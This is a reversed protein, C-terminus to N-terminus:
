KSEVILWFNFNIEPTFNLNVEYQGLKKIAQFNKFYKAQLCFDFEKKILKIVDKIQIAGYLLGNNNASVKVVVTKNQLKKKLKKFYEKQKQEQKNKKINKQQIKKILEKTAPKALGKKFLFNQAYGDSLDVIQGKKYKSFDKIFVVKM